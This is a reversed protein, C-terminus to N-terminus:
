MEVAGPTQAMKVNLIGGGGGEGDGGIGGGLGGQGGAGGGAGGAGVVTVRARGLAIQGAMGFEPLSTHRAFRLKAPTALVAPRYEALGAQRWAQMGGSVSQVAPYGFARLARAAYLSRMGGQCLLLIRTDQAIQRRELEIELYDRPIHTAGAPSGSVIEEEQRIDILLASAGLGFADTSALELPLIDPM